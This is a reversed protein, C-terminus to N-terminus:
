RSRRHNNRRATYPNGFVPVSGHGARATARIHESGEPDIDRRLGLHDFPTERGSADRKEKRRRKMRCHLMRSLGAAIQPDPGREIKKTGERVRRLSTALQHAHRPRFERFEERSGQLHQSRIAGPDDMARIADILNRRGAVRLDGFTAIAADGGKVHM